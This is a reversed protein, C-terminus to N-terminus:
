AASGLTPPRLVAIDTRVFEEGVCLVPRDFEAAVGYVVCDGQASQRAL